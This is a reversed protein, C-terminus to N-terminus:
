GNYVKLILDESNNWEERLLASTQNQRYKKRMNFLISMFKTQGKIALAFNKQYEEKWNAEWVELLNFYEADVWDKLKNLKEEVESFYVLLEACDGKLIFPLLYKPNYMNDGNGRMQHLSLYSPNKIKWRNNHDDRIVVGEFTPDNLTQENLFEQIEEISKFHYIEPKSFCKYNLKEYEEFTLERHKNFASLLFMQPRDYTRVVKNWLSVFECAYSLNKDLILDLEQLNEIGMAKCFAHQWNFDQFQLNDLGFSARTNAYWVGDHNYINILSGDLKEQVIFNNFNFNKMEEIVEGWNFFRYFSRSVLSYVGNEYCLNLSRCERVIPHTKPKSEIQDYNLIVISKEPHLTANIGLEQNLQELSKGSNLYELIQM